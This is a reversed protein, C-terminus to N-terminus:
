PVLDTLISNVNETAKQSLEGAALGDYDQRLKLIQQQKVGRKVRYNCAHYGALDKPTSRSPPYARAFTEQSRVYARGLRLWTEKDVDSDVALLAFEGFYFYFGSFPQCAWAKSPLPM